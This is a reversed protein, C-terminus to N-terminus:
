NYRHDMFVLKFHELALFQSKTKTSRTECSILRNFSALSSVKDINMSSGIRKFNDPLGYLINSFIAM